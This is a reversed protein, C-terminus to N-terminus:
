RPARPTLRDRRRESPAGRRVCVLSAHRRHALLLGTRGPRDREPARPGRAGSGGQGHLPPRAPDRGDAGPPPNGGRMRADVGYAEGVYDIRNDIDDATFELAIGLKEALANAERALTPPIEYDGCSRHSGWSGHREVRRARPSRWGSRPRGPQPCCSATSPWGRGIRRSPSNWSRRLTAWRVSSSGKILSLMSWRGRRRSSRGSDTKRRLWAQGFEIDELHVEAGLIDDLLLNGQVPVSKSDRRLMLVAKIGLKAAAAALQRCHNSQAAAGQVVVNAGQALADGLTFELQRTKNGGFALGTCDDRKIWIEPGGLADSLRPCPELPTSLSGARVRPFRKIRKRLTAADVPPALLSTIESM